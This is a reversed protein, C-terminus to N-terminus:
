ARKEMVLYGERRDYDIYEHTIGVLRYEPNDALFGNTKKQFEDRTGGIFIIFQDQTNPTM